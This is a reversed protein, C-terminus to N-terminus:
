RQQSATRLPPATSPLHHLFFSALLWARLAREDPVHSLEPPPLRTKKEEVAEEPALLLPLLLWVILTYYVSCAGSCLAGRLRSARRLQPQRSPGGCVVVRGERRRGRDVAKGTAISFSGRHGRQREMNGATALANGGCWWVGSRLWVLSRAAYRNRSRRPPRARIPVAPVGGLSRETPGDLSWVDPGRRQPQGGYAFCNLNATRVYLIPSPKARAAM